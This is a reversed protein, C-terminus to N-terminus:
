MAGSNRLGLIVTHDHLTDSDVVHGIPEEEHKLLVDSLTSLHKLIVPTVVMSLVITAILIQSYESIILDNSRALELIALSFEGIQVLSLATKLSVRKSENIRILGFIISFKLAM